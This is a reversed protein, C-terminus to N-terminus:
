NKMIERLFETAYSGKMIEFSLRAKTKGTNLDDDEIEIIEIKEPKFSLARQTGKGGIKKIFPKQFNKLNIGEEEFIRDYIENAQGSLETTAGIIPVFIKEEHKIEGTLQKNLNMDYNEIRIQLYKNFLFSQYAHIFLKQFQLPLSNFAQFYDNKRKDLEKLIKREIRLHSPLINLTEKPNENEWFITRAKKIEESETEFAKGIYNKIAGKVDEQLLRKGVIHTIPRKDGFRQQGFSNLIGGKSEIEKQTEKIRKSIREKPYKIERVTIDFYNGWLNGLRIEKLKMCLAKTQMTPFSLNQILKKEFKTKAGWVSVRQATLAKKDKSGAISFNNRQIKWLKSIWDLASSTDIDNKILVFHLFLGKKGPLIFSESRPDLIQHYNIIEGVVFDEAVQKIRGGIGTTTTIHQTLFRDPDLSSM